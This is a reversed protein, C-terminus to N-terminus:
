LGIDMDLRRQKFVVRTKSLINETLNISTCGGWINNRAMKYDELHRSVLVAMELGSSVLIRRDQDQDQIM